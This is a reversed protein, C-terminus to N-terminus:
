QCGQANNGIFASSVKGVVLAGVLSVMPLITAVSDVATKIAKINRASVPIFPNGKIIQRRITNRTEKSVTLNSNLLTGDIDSFILRKTM